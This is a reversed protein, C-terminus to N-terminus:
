EIKEAGYILEFSGGKCSPVNRCCLALLLPADFAYTLCFKDNCQLGVVSMELEGVPQLPAKHELLINDRYNGGLDGVLKFLAESATWRLLAAADLERPPYCDLEGELLFREKVAGVVRDCLEIDLGVPNNECLAVAAYGRTHSISVNGGGALSPKGCADYVVAAGSGLLERLLLRTAAWESRRREGRFALATEREAPSLQSLLWEASETIRWVAVLAGACNYKRFLPM